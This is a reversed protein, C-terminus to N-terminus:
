MEVVPLSQVTICTCLVTRGTSLKQLWSLYQFTLKSIWINIITKKLHTQLNSNVKFIITQCVIDPVVDVWQFDPTKLRKSWTSLIKQQLQRFQSAAKVMSWIFTISTAETVDGMLKHIAAIFGSTQRNQEWVIFALSTQM